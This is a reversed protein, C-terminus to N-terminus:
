VKLSFSFMIHLYLYRLKFAVEKFKQYCRELNLCIYVVELANMLLSEVILFLFPLSDYKLTCLKEMMIVFHTTGGVITLFVLPSAGKKLAAFEVLLNSCYKESSLRDVFKEEQVKRCFHAVSVALLFHGTSRWCNDLAFDVCRLAYISVQPLYFFMLLSTTHLIGVLFAVVFLCLHNPHPLSDENLIMPYQICLYSLIPILFFTFVTPFILKVSGWLNDYTSINYQWNSLLVLIQQQSLSEGKMWPERPWPM